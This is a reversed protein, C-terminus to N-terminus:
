HPHPRTKSKPNKPVRCNSQSKNVSVEMVFQCALVLEHIIQSICHHTFSWWSWFIILIILMLAAGAILWLGLAIKLCLESLEQWHFCSTSPFGAKLHLM